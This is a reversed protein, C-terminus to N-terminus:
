FRNLQISKHTQSNGFVVCQYLPGGISKHLGGATASSGKGLGVKLYWITEARNVRYRPIGHFNSTKHLSLPKQQHSNPTATTGQVFPYLVAFVKPHSQILVCLYLYVSPHVSEHMQVNFGSDHTLLCGGCACDGTPSFSDGIWVKPCLQCGFGCFALGPNGQPSAKELNYISWFFRVLPCHM